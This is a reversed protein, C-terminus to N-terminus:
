LFNDTIDFRYRIFERILFKEDMLFGIFFGKM